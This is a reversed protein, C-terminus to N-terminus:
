RNSTAVHAGLPRQSVNAAEVCRLLTPTLNLLAVYKYWFPLGPWATQRYLRVMGREQVIRQTFGSRSETHVSETVCVRHAYFRHQQMSGSKSETHM